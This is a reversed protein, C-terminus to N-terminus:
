ATIGTRSVPESSRWGPSRPLDDGVRLNGAAMDQWRAISCASNRAAGNRCASRNGPGRREARTEVTSVLKTRRAHELEVPEQSADQHAASGARLPHETAAHHASLGMSERRADRCAPHMDMLWSARPDRRVARVPNPPSTPACRGARMEHAAPSSSPEKRRALSSFTAAGPADPRVRRWVWICARPNTGSLSTSARM